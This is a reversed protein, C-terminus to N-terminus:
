IGRHCYHVPPANSCHYPDSPLLMGGSWNMTSRMLLRLLLLDSSDGLIEPDSRKMKSSRLVRYCKTSAVLFAEEVRRRSTEM